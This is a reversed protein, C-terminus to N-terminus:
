ARPPNWIDFTLESSLFDKVQPWSTSLTIKQRQESHAYTVPTIAPMNIVILNSTDQFPLDHNDDHGEGRYHMELYGLFSLQGEEELHVQYHEYLEPLKGMESVDTASLLYLFALSISVLIKM